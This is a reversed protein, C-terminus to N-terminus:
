STPKNNTRFTVVTHDETTSAKIRYDVRIRDMPDNISDYLLHGKHETTQGVVEKHRRAINFFAGYPVRQPISKGHATFVVDFHDRTPELSVKGGELHYEIKGVKVDKPFSLNKMSDLLNIPLQLRQEM